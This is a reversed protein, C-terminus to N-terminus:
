RDLTSRLQSMSSASFKRSPRFDHSTVTRLRENHHYVPGEPVSYESSASNRGFRFKLPDLAEYSFPRGDMVFNSQSIGMSKFQENIVLANIVDLSVNGATNIVEQSVPVPRQLKM